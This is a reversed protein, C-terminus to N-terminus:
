VRSGIGEPLHNLLWSHSTRPAKVNAGGGLQVGVSWGAGDPVTIIRGM